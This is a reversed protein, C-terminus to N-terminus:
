WAVDEVTPRKPPPVEMPVASIIDQLTKLIGPEEDVYQSCDTRVQEDSFEGIAVIGWAQEKSINRQFRVPTYNFETNDFMDDITIGRKVDEFGMEEEEEERNFIHVLLGHTIIRDRLAGALPAADKKTAIPGDVLQIGIKKDRYSVILDIHYEKETFQPKILQKKAKIKIEKDLSSLYVEFAEHIKDRYGDYKSKVEQIKDEISKQIQPGRSELHLKQKINGFSPFIKHYTQIITAADERTILLQTELPNEGVEMAKKNLAMKCGYSIAGPYSGAEFFYQIAEKTFPYLHYENVECKENRPLSIKNRDAWHQLHAHVLEYSEQETFKGLTLEKYTLPDHPIVFRRQLTPDGLVADNIKRYTDETFTFLVCLGTSIDSLLFRFTGVFKQIAETTLTSDTSKGIMRIHEDVNDVCLCIGIKNGHKRRLQLIVRNIETVIHERNFNSPEKLEINEKNLSERFYSNTFIHQLVGELTLPIGSPKLIIVFGNHEERNASYWLNNIFQTKGSGPPGIISTMASNQMCSLYIVGFEKKFKVAHHGVLISSTKETAEPYSFPPDIETAIKLVDKLSPM